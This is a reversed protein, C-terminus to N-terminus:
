NHKGDYDTQKLRYYNIGKLPKSDILEYELKTTNNGAGKITQVLDYNSGNGSREVTFYDNNTETATSWNLKVFSKESVATFGLLEIPLWNVQSISALAFPSFSTVAASSVVTGSTTSGTTGGNGYDQWKTGDWKAVTLDTLSAVNCLPLAITNWSLTVTADGSGSAQDRNLIWYECQSINDITSVKSYHSYMPHSDANYYETMFELGNGCCTNSISIAIPRYYSGKGVPFTFPDTGIKSCAGSIFSNNNAGSVMVGSGFKLINVPSTIPDTILIGKVFTLTQGFYNLLCGSLLTINNGTKNITINGDFLGAAGTLDFNQNNGGAFILEGTGGDFGSGVTVTGRAEIKANSVGNTYSLDNSVDITDGVATAIITFAGCTGTANITFNYFSTSTLLDITFTRTACPSSGPNLTLTGNNHNFTGASHTFLTPSTTWTGGISFIGSTGTFNGGSLTFTGVNITIASSGGTFAGSSVSFNSSGVTITNTGQSVTGTYGAISFGAVNVAADISCNGNKTGAGGDFIAIDGSGPVSAGGAGNSSASWNATNNWSSAGVSVWYRNASFCCSLLLFSLFM